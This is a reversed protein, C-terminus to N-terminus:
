NNEIIRKLLGIVTNSSSSDSSIGLNNRITESYLAITNNTGRLASLKGSITNTDQPDGSTGITDKIATTNTNVTTMDAGVGSGGSEKIGKLLGIVTNANSEDSTTGVTSKIYGVNIYNKSTDNKISQLKGSITTDAASDTRTGTVYAVSHLRGSITSASVVDGAEGITKKIDVLKGNNNETYNRITSIKGFLDESKTTSRVTGLTQNTQKLQGVITSSGVNDTDSGVANYMNLVNTATREALENNRQLRGNITGSTSEESVNGLVNNIQTTNTNVTTMDVGGGSGGGGGTTNEKIKKLLGIVTTDTILDTTTGINSHINEVAETSDDLAKRMDSTMAVLSRRQASDSLTGVSNSLSKVEETIEASDGGSPNDVHVLVPVAPRPRKINSM